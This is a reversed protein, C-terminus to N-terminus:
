RRPGFLHGDVLAGALRGHNEIRTPADLGDRRFQAKVEQVANREAETASDDISIVRSCVIGDREAYARARYNSLGGKRSFAHAVHITWVSTM